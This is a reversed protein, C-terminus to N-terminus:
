LVVLEELANKYVDHLYEKIDNRNPGSIKIDLGWIFSPKVTIIHQTWGDYGHENMHHYEVILVLKDTTSAESIKTGCDIGAGSPLMSQLKSLAQTHKLYWENNGKSKCTLAADMTKIIAQALTNMM